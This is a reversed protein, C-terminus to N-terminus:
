GLEINGTFYGSRIRFDEIELRDDYIQDAAVFGGLGLIVRFGVRFRLGLRLGLGSWLYNHITLTM